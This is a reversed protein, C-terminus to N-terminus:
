KHKNHEIHLQNILSNLFPLCVLPEIHIPFAFSIAIFPYYHRRARYM